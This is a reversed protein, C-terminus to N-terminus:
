VLMAMQLMYLEAQEHRVLVHRLDSEYLEDYIHLLAAGPYGFMTTVDGEELGKILARAGTVKEPSGITM